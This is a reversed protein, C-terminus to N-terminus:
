ANANYFLNYLGSEDEPDPLLENYRHKIAYANSRQLTVSLVDWLRTVNEGFPIGTMIAEQEAVYKVLIDVEPTCGGTTEFALPAFDYNLARLDDLQEEDKNKAAIEATILPTRSAKSVKTACLPSSVTIDFATPLPCYGPIGQSALFDARYTSTETKTITTEVSLSIMGRRAHYVLPRYLDNHRHVVDGM